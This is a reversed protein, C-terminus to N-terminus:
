TYKSKAIAIVDVTGAGGEPTTVELGVYAYGTVDIAGTHKIFPHAAPAAYTTATAPIQYETNGAQLTLVATAYTGSVTRIEFSAVDFERVDLRVPVNNKNCLTGAANINCGCFYDQRYKM